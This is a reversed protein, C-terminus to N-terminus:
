RCIFRSVVVDGRRNVVVHETMRAGRGGVINFTLQLKPGSTTSFSEVFTGVIHFRRGTEQGIGVVRRLVLVLTDGSNGSSSQRIVSTIHVTGTFDIDEGVCAREEDSISVFESAPATSTFAIASAASASGVVFLFPLLLRLMGM